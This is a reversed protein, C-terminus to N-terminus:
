ENNSEPQPPVAILASVDQWGLRGTKAWGPQKDTALHDMLALFEDGDPSLKRLANFTAGYMRKAHRLVSKVTAKTAERTVALRAMCKSVFDLCAFAGRMYDLPETLLSLTLKRRSSSRLQIEWRVWPSETDGLQKGKEYVRLQKESTSHGVHFTSGEGSGYDEIGRAKPRHMQGGFKYDFEGIAYMCRALELNRIGDFDDYAVDVRSLQCGIGELKARLACWPEAHDASADARNELIACGLGSLEFRLSPRGGKRTTLCGGLEIMGAPQDWVNLVMYRYAYFKGPNADHALKLGSGEFLVSMAAEAVERVVLDAPVFPRARGVVLEGQEDAEDHEGKPRPGYAALHVTLGDRDAGSLNRGSKELMALLDVSGAVWDIGAWTRLTSATAHTLQDTGSHSVGRNSSPLLEATGGDAM